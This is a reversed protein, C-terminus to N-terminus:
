IQDAIIMVVDNCLNKLVGIDGGCRMRRALLGHALVERKICEKIDSFLGLYFLVDEVGCLTCVEALYLKSEIYEWTDVSLGHKIYDMHIYLNYRRLLTTFVENDHFFEELTEIYNYLTKAVSIM